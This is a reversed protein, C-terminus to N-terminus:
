IFATSSLAWKLLWKETSIKPHPETILIIRALYSTWQLTGEKSYFKGLNLLNTNITFHIQSAQLKRFFEKCVSNIFAEQNVRHITLILRVKTKVCMQLPGQKPTPRKKGERCVDNVVNKCDTGPQWATASTLYYMIIQENTYDFQQQLIGCLLLSPVSLGKQHSSSVLKLGTTPACSRESSLNFQFLSWSVTRITSLEIKLESSSMDKFFLSM